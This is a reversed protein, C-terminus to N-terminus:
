VVSKRDITVGPANAPVPAVTPSITGSTNNYLIVAAAGANQANIAKVYFGCTGRRILVAKGAMSGAPLAACGDNATTPTGTKGLPLTGSTPITASSGAAGGYVFQHDDPSATFVPGPFVI